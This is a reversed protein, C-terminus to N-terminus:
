VWVCLLDTLEHSTMNYMYTITACLSPDRSWLAASPEGGHQVQNDRSGEGWAMIIRVVSREHKRSCVNVDNNYKYCRFSYSSVTTETCTQLSDNIKQKHSRPWQILWHDKQCNTLTKLLTDILKNICFDRAREMDNLLYSTLLTDEESFYTSILTMSSYTHFAWCIWLMCTLSWITTLTCRKM